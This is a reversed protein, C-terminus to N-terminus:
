VKKWHYHNGTQIYGPLLEKVAKEVGGSLDHRRECAAAINNGCIIGGHAMKPILLMLTERIYECTNDSDIHAFKISGEHEKLFLSSDGQFFKINGYGLSRINKEFAGKISRKKAEQVTIHSAGEKENGRWTDVAMMSEPFCAAGIALTARGEWAGIDIIVGQAERNLKEFTDLLWKISKSSYWREHFEVDPLSASYRQLENSVCKPLFSVKSFRWDIAREFIDCGAALAVRVWSARNYGILEQHSYSALKEKIHEEGGYFSFHWGGDKIVEAVVEYRIRQGDSDLRKWYAGSVAKTGNWFGCTLNMYYYSMVQEFATVGHTPKHRSLADASPIEDVDSVLVTDSDLVDSLGNKMWNRSLRERAWSDHCANMADAPVVLHVIQSLYEAFREKYAQFYLIKPLGSITISSEVIVFKDVIESLERFRIELLELEHCFLFCDYIM